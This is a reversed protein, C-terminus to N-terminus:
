LFVTAGSVGIRFYTHFLVKFEWRAESTNRVLFSTALQGPSLTISYTINFKHDWASKAKADLM